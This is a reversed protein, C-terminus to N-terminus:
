DEFKQLAGWNNGISGDSEMRVDTNIDMMADRLLKMETKVYKKPVSLNLEDHVFVLLRGHQKVKDYNIIAQKSIDASSSQIVYNLMKYGFSQMRNHKDSWRPEECYYQRGGWTTLPQNTNEYEKLLDQIDKV